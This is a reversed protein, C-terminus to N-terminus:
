ANAMILAILQLVGSAILFIFGTILLAKKQAKEVHTTANALYHIHGKHTPMLQQINVEHCHAVLTLASLIGTVRYALIVSGVISSITALIKITEITM